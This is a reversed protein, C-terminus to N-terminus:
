NFLFGIVKKQEKKGSSLRFGGVFVDGLRLRFGLFREVKFVDGATLPTSPVFSPELNKGNCGFIDVAEFWGFSVLLM